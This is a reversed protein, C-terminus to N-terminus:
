KTTYKGLAIINSILRYSGTVGSPLQRFWSFGTYVYWGKGYPAMLLGGSKEDEGIDTCSFPTLYKEDWKNPFYLGREQVWNSFDDKTIENPFHLLSHEPLLVKVEANEMTVRDRSISFPYPGLEKTKLDSGSTNYQSILNGGLEVFKFLEKLKSTVWPNTNFARIGIFIADYNKALEDAIIDKEELLTVSYGVSRLSTPMEDGSGNIYGIRKGVIKLDTRILKVEAPLFVTQLPIHDYSITQMSKSFVEGNESTANVTLIGEAKSSIPTVKFTLNQEPIAKSLQVDIFEPSVSFGNPTILQVKGSFKDGLKQIKVKVMKSSDNSFIFVKQPFEISVSPVIEVPKYVEGKSPESKRNVVQTKLVVTDKGMICEISASFAPNSNPQGILNNSPVTYMGLTGKTNLWYPNTYDVQEPIVFSPKWFFPTNFVLSSNLLSDKILVQTQNNDNRWISIKGIKLDSKTRLTLEINSKAESKKTYSPSSMGFEFYLGMLKTILRDLEELKIKKWHEDGTKLIAKRVLLLDKVSNEPHSFDFKKEVSALMKIIKEGNPVRSWTTNIGEFPDSGKVDGKLPVGDLFELYEINTGRVSLSGFGQCKHQSRAEAAIENISKGRLPLYTGVDLQGWKSKDIKAFKEESGYFFWSTNCYIRAASWPNLGELIQDPYVNKDGADKFGRLSLIASGTHHGHTDITTDTSFRNIIIDPKWKRIVRVVDNYVENENWIAFTEGPGKSFGFDNARSFFQTGGDIRRASLLEQTRLVGLMERIESGILNQGGDGRTLSLYATQYLRHNAMYGIMRTNEDDPHAAVYLVSGLVSLKKLDQFLESSSPKSPAQSFSETSYFLFILLFFFSKHMKNVTENSPWIHLKKKM